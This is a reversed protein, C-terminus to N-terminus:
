IEVLGAFILRYLLLCLLRGCIGELDHGSFQLIPWLRVWIDEFPGHEDLFPLAERNHIGKCQDLVQRLQPQLRQELRDGNLAQAVTGHAM